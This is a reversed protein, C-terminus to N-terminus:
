GQSGLYFGRFKIMTDLAVETLNVGADRIFAAMDDPTFNPDDLKDSLEAAQEESLRMIAEKDIQRLLTQKLDAVVDAHIDAPLNTIGRDILLNEIFNDIAQEPSQPAQTPQPQTQSAPTPQPQNTPQTQATQTQDSAPATAQTQNEM